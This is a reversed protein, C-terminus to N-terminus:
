PRTTYLPERLRGTKPKLWRLPAFQGTIGTVMFPICKISLAARMFSMGTDRSQMKQAQSLVTPISECLFPLEMMSLLEQDSFVQNDYYKNQYGYAKLYNATLIEIRYKDFLSLCQDYKKYVPACDFGNFVTNETTVGKRELGCWTTRYMSQTVPLNLFEAMSAFTAEPNLKLDEFRIVAIDPRLPHELPFYYDKPLISGFAFCYFPDLQIEGRENRADPHGNTMFNIVSGAQTVPDRIVALIKHYPFMEVISFYLQFNERQIGALYFMDDHPYVFVAPIVRGFTRKHCNAYALYIGTLWEKASPYLINNLVLHLEELFDQCSIGNFERRLEESLTESEFHLLNFLFEKKSDRDPLKKLFRIAKSATQGELQNKYFDAFNTMVCDPITLLDPHFDLIDALFSTGSVNAIKWGFIIRKIEGIRLKQPTFSSYDVGFREKFDVPCVHNEKGFLFLFKKEELLRDIRAVLLLKAFHTFSQYYLYIHNDYALDESRRMVDSLYCLHSYNVEQELFLISEMRESYLAYPTGDEFKYLETFTEEDKRFVYFETDSVMYLRYPLAEFECDLDGLVFPYQELLRKNEQFTSRMEEENPEYCAENLIELIEAKYHGEQYLTILELIAERYKEAAFLDLAQQFRREINEM